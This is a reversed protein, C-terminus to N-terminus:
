KVETLVIRGFKRHELGTEDDILKIVERGLYCKEIKDAVAEDVIMEVANLLVETPQSPYEITVAFSKTSIM